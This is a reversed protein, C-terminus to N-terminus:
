EHASRSWDGIVAVVLRRGFPEGRPDKGYLVLVCKTRLAGRAPRATRSLTKAM